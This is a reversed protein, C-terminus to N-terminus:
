QSAVWQLNRQGSRLSCSSCAIVRLFSDEIPVLVVHALDEDDVVVTWTHQAPVRLHRYEIAAGRRDDESDM